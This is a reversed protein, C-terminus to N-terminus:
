QVVRLQPASPQGSVMAQAEVHPRFFEGLSPTHKSKQPANTIATPEKNKIVDFFRLGAKYAKSEAGPTHGLLYLGYVIAPLILALSFFFLKLAKEKNAARQEARMLHAAENALDTTQSDLTLGCRLITFMSQNIETLKDQHTTAKEAHLIYENLYQLCLKGKEKIDAAEEIDIRRHLKEHIIKLNTLSIAFLSQETETNGIRTILPASTVCHPSESFAYFEQNFTKLRSWKEVLSLTKATKAFDLHDEASTIASSILSDPIDNNELRSLDNHKNFYYRRLLWIAKDTKQFEAEILRDIKAMLSKLSKNTVARVFQSTIDRISLDLLPYKLAIEAFFVNIEALKDALWRDHDDTGSLKDFLHRYFSEIESALCSKQEVSLSQTKLIQAALAEASNMLQQQILSIEKDVSSENDSLDTLTKFIANLMRTIGGTNDLSAIIPYSDEGSSQCIRLAKIQTKAGIIDKQVQFRFNEVPFIKQEGTPSIVLFSLAKITTVVEYHEVPEGIACYEVTYDQQFPLYTFHYPKSEPYDRAIEEAFYEAFFDCLLHFPHSGLEQMHVACAVDVLRKDADNLSCEEDRLYHLVQERDLNFVNWGPKTLDEGPREVDHALQAKQQEPSLSPPTTYLIYTPCGQLEDPLVSYWEEHPTNSM